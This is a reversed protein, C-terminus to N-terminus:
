TGQGYVESEPNGEPNGREIINVIVECAERPDIEYHVAARAIGEIALLHDQLVSAYVVLDDIEELLRDLCPKRWLRGGHEEQGRLYKRRICGAWAEIIAEIHQEPSIYEKFFMEPLEQRRKRRTKVM